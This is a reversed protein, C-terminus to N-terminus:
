AGYFLGFVLQELYTREILGDASSLKLELSLAGKGSVKMYYTRQGQTRTDLPFVFERHELVREGFPLADGMETAAFVEEEVPAYLTLHDIIPHRQVLYWRQGVVASMDLTFRLWYTSRTFGFSPNQTTAPMFRDAFSGSVQQVTLSGDPDELIDVHPGLNLEGDGPLPRVTEAQAINVLLGALLCFVFRFKGTVGVGERLPLVVELSRRVIVGSGCQMRAAAKNHKTGSGSQGSAPCLCSDDAAGRRHALLSPIILASLITPPMASASTTMRAPARNTMVRTISGFSKLGSMVAAARSLALRTSSIWPSRSQVKQGDSPTCIPRVSARRGPSSASNAPMSATCRPTATHGSSNPETCISSTSTSPRCSLRTSPESPALQSFIPALSLVASAASGAVVSSAALPPASSIGTDIGDSVMLLALM